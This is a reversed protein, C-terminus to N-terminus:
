NSLIEAIELITSAKGSNLNPVQEPGPMLAEAIYPAVHLGNAISIDSIAASTGPRLNPFSRRVKDNDVPLAGIKEFEMRKFHIPSCTGPRTLRWSVEGHLEELVPKQVTAKSITLPRYWALFDFARGNDVIVMAAWGDQKWAPSM